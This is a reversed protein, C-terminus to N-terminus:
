KYKILNEVIKSLKQYNGAGKELKQQIKVSNEIMKLMKWHIEM